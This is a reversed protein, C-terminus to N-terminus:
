HSTERLEREPLRLALLFAIAALPVLVLFTTHLAGNLAARTGAELAQPIDAGGRVLDNPDFRAGAAGLRDSLEAALRNVLLAGLAAVALSAGMSRNFVLAGTVVGVERLPVANQAALTLTQVTVGMGAGIVALIAAVLLRSTDVGVRTLLVVGVLIAATGAIPITRYRGTRAILQGATAAAIVWGLAHPILVIGSNTASGGLVGQVYLPVYVVVGFLLAGVLLSAAGAVAVLRDAMLRLPVLPEPARQEIRLFVALLAVGLAAAGVVQVSDWPYTTGGWVCALLIGTIAVTLVVAGPWDIRHSRPAPTSRMTRMVVVLAFLGIPLNIIFIWRWSAADTLTGGVLPGAVAAAAWMGGIFGTYRGRERPPFLDAVAAQSLPILGGAGLGQLARFAILQGMSQAVACLASGTLFLVISVLFLRRRGYLDSLKGYLPITVTSALLYATVVWSLHEFGHLDSVIQPLATAVITQDLAALLTALMIASFAVILERRSYTTEAPGTAM